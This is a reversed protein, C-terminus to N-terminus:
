SKPQIELPHPTRLESSERRFRGPSKGFTERFARNLHSQDCMGCQLAIQSLPANSEMLLERAREMRMNLMFKYPACGFSQKFARGFHSVSLRCHVALESLTIQRHLNSEILTLTKSKQWQRLRYKWPQLGDPVSEMEWLPSSASPSVVFFTRPLEQGSSAIIESNNQM